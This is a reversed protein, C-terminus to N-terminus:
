IVIEVAAPNKGKSTRAADCSDGDMEGGMEEDLEDLEDGSDSSSPTGKSGSLRYKPFALMEVMEPSIRNRKKTVVDNM